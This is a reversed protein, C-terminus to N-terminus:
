HRESKTNIEISQIKVLIHRVTTKTKVAAFKISKEVNKLEISNASM